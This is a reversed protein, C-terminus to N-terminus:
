AAKRRERKRMAVHAKIQRVAEDHPVGLGADLQRRGVLVAEVFAIEGDIHRELIDEVLSSKSRKAQKALAELKRALSAPIRATITTSKAPPQAM